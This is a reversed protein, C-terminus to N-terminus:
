FQSSCCVKAKAVLGQGDRPDLHFTIAKQSLYLKIHGLSRVLKLLDFVFM